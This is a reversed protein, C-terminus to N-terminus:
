DFRIRNDRIKADEVLKQIAQYGTRYTNASELTSVEQAENYEGGEKNRNYVSFVYVGNTGIVPESLQNLPALTIKANLVPEMGINAIRPTNMRIFKVTDMRSNMAQAYDNLSSLKQSKLEEVIKEGKKKLLLESKLIPAVQAVSQYGDAMSGTRIAVVFKNKCEFINSVEGKSSNEFAWRIVQRSDTISGLTHDTSMVKTNSIVEYGAEKAAANIKELTNNRTIFQNLSNYISGYTKSSPTVQQLVYAVKYKPVSKTKEVVQAIHYGYSAKILVLQNEPAAFVENKFEEGYRRLATIETLWGIDGGNESSQQDVSYQTAIENFKAGGSKLLAFLSDAFNKLQAADQSTLVIDNIKLSDPANKKDVLKLLRYSNDKFIPGDIEGTDVKTIFSVMDPDLASESVYADVYPVESAENVIEAIDRTANVMDEKVKEIEKIAKEFDDESPAIDVAIYDLIRAPKQKFQEKRQDYLKKIESNSVNVTSDPITSYSQMAFVIDSSEASSEYADKADIPNAVIAKTLLAMYKDQMRQLKINREWFLWLKRANEIEARSEVPATDVNELLKLINLARTKNFVGTQPDAFLPFQQVLPSINEGQIMDFLEEPTVEMGIKGLTENLVIEQVMSNYVSQRVQTNQEDTLTNTGYQMKYVNGMEEIRELYENYHIVSGDVNAVEDQSPRFYSSASNLGDQVIFGVLALGILVVLLGGHKRIKELTAM